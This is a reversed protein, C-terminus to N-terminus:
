KNELDSISINHTNNVHTFIVSGFRSQATNARKNNLTVLSQGSYLKNIEVYSSPNTLVFDFDSIAARKSIENLSIIPVLTFTHPQLHESLEDMTPKWQETAIKIGKLARVAVKYDTAWSNNIFFIAFLILVIIYQFFKM